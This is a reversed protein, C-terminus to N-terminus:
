DSYGCIFRRSPFTASIVAASRSDARRGRARKQASPAATISTSTSVLARALGGLADRVLNAARASAERAPRRPRRASAASRHLLRQEKPREVHRSCREM